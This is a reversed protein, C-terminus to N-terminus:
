EVLISNYYMGVLLEAENTLHLVTGHLEIGTAEAMQQSRGNFGLAHDVQAGHGLGGSGRRAPAPSRAPPQRESVGATASRPRATM